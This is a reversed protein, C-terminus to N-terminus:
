HSVILKTTSSRGDLDIIRLMYIGDNLSSVNIRLENDRRQVTTLNVEQGSLTYCHIDINNDFNGKAILWDAAPNPYIDFANEVTEGVSVVTCNDTVSASVAQVQFSSTETVPTYAGVILSQTIPNSVTASVITFDATVQSCGDFPFNNGLMPKTKILRTKSTQPDGASIGAMYISGDNGKFFDFATYLASNFYAIGNTISPSASWSCLMTGGGSVEHLSVYGGGMWLLNSGWSTTSISAENAAAINGLSDLEILRTWNLYDTTLLAKVADNADTVFDTISGLQAYKKSNIVVGSSDFTILLINGNINNTAGVHVGGAPAKSLKLVSMPPAAGLTKGWLLNGSASFRFLIMAETTPNLSVNIDALALYISGDSAEALKSSAIFQDSLFSGTSYLNQWLLSGQGTIRILGSAPTTFNLKVASFSIVLDGNSTEVVDDASCSYISQNRFDSHWILNGDANYRIVTFANPINITGTFVSLLDGNACYITKRIGPANSLVTTKDFSLLQANVAAAFLVFFIILTQRKNM